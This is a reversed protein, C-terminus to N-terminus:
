TAWWAARASRAHGGRDHQAADRALLRGDLQDAVGAAVPHAPRRRAAAVAHGGPGHVTRRWARCRSQRRRPRRIDLYFKIAPAGGDSSIIATPSPRGGGFPPLFVVYFHYM